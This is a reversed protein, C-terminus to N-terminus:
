RTMIQTSSLIIIVFMSIFLFVSFTKYVRTAYLYCMNVPPPITEVKFIPKTCVPCQLAQTALLHFCPKHLHINCVCSFRYTSDNMKFSNTRIDMIKSDTSNDSFDSLCIMCIPNPTEIENYESNM